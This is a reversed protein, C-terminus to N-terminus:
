LCFHPMFQEIREKSWGTKMEIKNELYENLLLHKQIM